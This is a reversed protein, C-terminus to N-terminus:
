KCISRCELDNVATMSTIARVDNVASTLQASEVGLMRMVEDHQAKVHSILEPVIQQLTVQAPPVRNNAEDRTHCVYAKLRTLPSCQTSGYRTTQVVLYCRWLTGGALAEVTAINQSEQSMYNEWIPNIFGFVMQQLEVPPEGVGCPLFFTQHDAPFGALARIAKRPMATLYCGEMSSMNWRGFRRIETEEAGALETMQCGSGRAAHTRAKSALGVAKFARCKAWYMTDYHASHMSWIRTQRVQEDQGSADRYGASPVCNYGENDLRVDLM